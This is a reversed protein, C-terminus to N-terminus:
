RSSALWSEPTGSWDILTASATQITRLVKQLEAKDKAWGAVYLFSREGTDIGFQGMKLWAHFGAVYTADPRQMAILLQNGLSYNHFRSSIDLWRRFCESDQIQGVAEELRRVLEPQADSEPQEGM